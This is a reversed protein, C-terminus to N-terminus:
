DKLSLSVIGVENKGDTKFLKVQVKDGSKKAPFLIVPKGLDVVASVNKGSEYLVYKAATPYKSKGIDTKSVTVKSFAKVATDEIKAQFPDTSVPKVTLFTTVVMGLIVIVGIIISVNRKWGKKM